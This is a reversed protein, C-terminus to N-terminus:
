KAKEGKLIFVVEIHEVKEHIDGLGAADLVTKVSLDTISFHTAKNGLELDFNVACRLGEVLQEIPPDGEMKVNLKSADKNISVKVTKENM